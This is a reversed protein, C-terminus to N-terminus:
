TVLSGQNEMEGLLDFVESGTIIVKVMDGPKIDQAKFYVVGDVEPAQYASRGCWWGTGYEEAAESEALVTLSSGLHRKLREDTIHAAMRLLRQLRRTKIREKIQKPLNYAPTDGERSYAFAGLWDFNAWNVFELMAQYAAKTEGPFGVMMTTRLAIDPIYRRILNIKKHLQANNLRRGMAQLIDDDGHQLPIDLYPCINEHSAMVKLLTEDVGDPYAYLLRIWLFPLASLRELLEPLLREGELDLGYATTDQALIILEKVGRSALGQAEALIDPIPRSKYVGRLQPILCYSCFNDCGEAIKIYALWPPSITHRKLYFTSMDWTPIPPLALKEAILAGIHNYEHTGLFADVEPLEQELEARYKEVLCGVAILLRCVGKTKYSAAQLIAAISEAKASEIFGCTNIIIVQALEATTAFQWGQGAMLGLMGESDVQNKSCGLSILFISIKSM